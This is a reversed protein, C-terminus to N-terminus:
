KKIPPYKWVAISSGSLILFKLITSALERLVYAYLSIVFPSTQKSCCSTSLVSAKTSLINLLLIHLSSICASPLSNSTGPPALNAPLQHFPLASM